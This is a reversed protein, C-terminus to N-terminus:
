NPEPRFRGAAHEPSTTSMSYRGSCRPRRRGVAGAAPHKRGALCEDLLAQAEAVRECISWAPNDAM